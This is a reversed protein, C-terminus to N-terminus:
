LQLRLYLEPLQKSKNAFRSGIRDFWLAYGIHFAKAFLLVIMLTARPLLGNRSAHYTHVPCTEGGLHLKYDWYATGLELRQGGRQIVSAILQMLGVNGLGHSDWEPGTRRAPLYWYVTDRFRWGYQYAVPHEDAKLVHFFLAGTEASRRVIDRHFQRAGPQCEFHGIKGLDRWQRTNVDVFDEFAAQAEAATEILRSEITFHRSLKNWRRKYNKRGNSSLAGLYDAFTAPLRLLVHTGSRRRLMRIGDLRRPASLSQLKPECPQLAHCRALLLALCGLDHLFHATAAQVCAADYPERFIPAPTGYVFDSCVIKGLRVRVPGVAFTDVFGPFLGVLEDADYFCLLQLRRDKGYHQWWTRCWDYSVSVDADCARALDDWADRSVPCAEFSEFCQLTPDSM